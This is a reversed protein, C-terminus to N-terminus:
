QSLVLEGVVTVNQETHARRIQWQEAKPQHLKQLSINQLTTFHCRKPTTPDTIVKKNCIKHHTYCHIAFIHVLPLHQAKKSESLTSTSEGIKVFQRRGSLFDLSWVIIHEPVDRSVYKDLLINHDTFAFAKCFDVFLIRIINESHDSAVFLEHVIKLL